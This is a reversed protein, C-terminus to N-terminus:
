LTVRRKRSSAKQFRIEALCCFASGPILPRWPSLREFSINFGGIVSIVPLTATGGAKSPLGRLLTRPGCGSIVIDHRNLIEVNESYTGALICVHGGSRPLSEIAEQISSFQGQDGVTVTCCCGCDQATPIETLPPFLNPCSNVSGNIATGNLTWTVLALCCYHRKIGLAAQPTNMLAPPEIDRTLTRAAWVWYDLEHFYTKGTGAGDADFFSVSLGTGSDLDFPTVLAIVQTAASWRRLFPAHPVVVAGTLQVKWTADPLAVPDSVLQVLNNHFMGLETEEGCMEVWDNQHLQTIQDNGISQLILDTNANIKTLAAANVRATFAGNENSWKFTATGAPGPDHIEVRYARNEAGGYGGTLPEECPNQVPPTPTVNVQLSGVTNFPRAAALKACASPCDTVTEDTTDLVKVQAVTQLRTCTDLGGFARERIYDGVEPRLNWDPKGNHDSFAQDRAAEDNIATLHRLWVEAYFLSKQTKGALVTSFNLGPWDAGNPFLNAWITSDPIPWDIQQLFDTADELEALLGGAYLRGPSLGISPNASEIIKITFGPHHIPRGCGGIVDVTELKRRHLVQQVWENWDADSGVRGQQWLTGTFHSRPDFTLRSFEGKM